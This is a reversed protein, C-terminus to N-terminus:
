EVLQATQVGISKTGVGQCNVQVSSAGTFQITDAIIQTCPTSTGSSGAFKLSANPLDIAGTIVQSGGGELSFATGVAMNRDGYFVIGKTPGSNPATLNVNASSAITASAWGDKSSGTFVFTVGQGGTCTSCIVTAGGQVSLGGKNGYLYYIGPTLDLTAGGNVTISGAYCDGPSLAPNKGSPNFTYNKSDCPSPTAPPPGYPDLVPQIGTRIGNTATITGSITGVALAQNVTVTASGGVSLSPSANSDSVVNCGALNLTNSGSMNVASSATRNLALVCDTGPNSLAVARATIPVDGTGFLASLLRPQPQSVIVEVAGSNKTFNGITPPQNVTVTVNKVGNAYGYSATVSNAQNTLNTGATAASVAGSDAASQMNKHKYLWWVAETGLGASGLLVPMMLAVVLVYSGSQDHLFHQLLRRM